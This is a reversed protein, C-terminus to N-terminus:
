RYMAEIQPGYRALIEDRRLKLTPTLLGDEMTWPDRLVTVRRVKAHGPFDRLQHSIRALVAKSAGRSQLASNDLPDLTLSRALASWEETNLVALAGLYPRSEGVVMVQEFLPDLTIASEMDTPSVNEGNSLVIIEKLRGTIYIRRSEIRARDGTHLWGDTDIAARTAAEDNWYGLMIGPGRVLLEDDEGICVEVDPLPAGVSAPDNDDLTNASVTPSAETLGYGQLLPLGLALFAHGIAPQLPAGGSLMVRIRGGFRDRLRRGVLHRLLPTLLRAPGTRKRDLNVALAFLWRALPPGRQLEGQLKQYVREYIRPVAFIITPRIVQLDATLQQISRAYAVTAGALMPLYYGNTRELTHTLPLLSLVVDEHYMDAVHLGGYATRLMNDHSLMVGKPRGTTGSTYVISALKQPNNDHGHSDRSGDPLWAQVPTPQEATGTWAPGTSLLLIRQLTGLQTHIPQLRRWQVDDQVLLLRV